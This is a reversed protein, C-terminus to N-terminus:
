VNDQHIVRYNKEMIEWKKEEDIFQQLLQEENRETKKTM